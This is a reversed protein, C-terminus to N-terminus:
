MLVPKCPAAQAALAVVAAVARDIDDASNLAGPSLRMAGGMTLTGLVTHAGPNCHLGSRGIVGFQEDLQEEVDAPDLGRITFAVPGCRAAADAPGYVSVGSIGRLGDLLRTVLRQEHERIAATGRELVYEVAAGLGALAPANVTGSEFGDPFLVPQTLSESAVGTGGQRIPHIEVHSGVYLVGTGSPGLLGKHGPAALVDIGDRLAALPRRLANHEAVTTIVHDGPQLLGKLALNLSVTTSETFLVRSADSAGILSAVAVRTQYVIRGANLALRHGGRGPSGGARLVADAMAYVAPPRPHSTAANDLYTVQESRM